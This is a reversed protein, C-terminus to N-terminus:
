LQIFYIIMNTIQLKQNLHFYILYHFPILQQLNTNQFEIRLSFCQEKLSELVISNIFIQQKSKSILRLYIYIYQNDLSMQQIQPRIM